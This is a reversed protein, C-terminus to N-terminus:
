GAHEVRGVEVPLPVGKKAIRELDDWRFFRRKGLYVTKILGRIQFNQVTRQSVQLYDAAQELSANPSKRTTEM